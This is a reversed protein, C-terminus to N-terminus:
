IPSHNSPLRFSHRLCRAEGGKASGTWDCRGERRKRVGSINGRGGLRRQSGKGRWPSSSRTSGLEPRLGRVKTICGEDDSVLASDELRLLVRMAEPGDEEAPDALVLWCGPTM